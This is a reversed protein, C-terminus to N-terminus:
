DTRAKAHPEEEPSAEEKPRLPVRQVFAEDESQGGHAEVQSSPRGQREVSIRTRWVSREVASSRAHMEPHPSSATSRPDGPSAPASAITESVAEAHVWAHRDLPACHVAGAAQQELRQSDPYQKDEPAQVGGPLSQAVRLVQQLPRHSDLPLM